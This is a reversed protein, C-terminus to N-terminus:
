IIIIIYKNYVASRIKGDITYINDVSVNREEKGEDVLHVTYTFNKQLHDKHNMVVRGRYFDGGCDIIVLESIAPLTTAFRKKDLGAKGVKYISDIHSRLKEYESNLDEKKAEAYDAGMGIIRYTFGSLVGEKPPCFSHVKIAM